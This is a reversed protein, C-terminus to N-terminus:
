CRHDPGVPYSYPPPPGGFASRRVASRGRLGLPRAAPYQRSPGDRGSITFGDGAPVWGNDFVRAGSEANYDNVSFRSNWQSANQFGITERDELQQGQAAPSFALLGAILNGMCRNM